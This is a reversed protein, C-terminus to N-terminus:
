SPQMEGTCPNLCYVYGDDGGTYVYGNAVAVSSEIPAQTKFKWILNGSWAGLAYIYSDTSGVYVIDDSVTPSSIVSGSTQFKWALVLSSPGVSATSSHSPDARWQSWNSSITTQGGQANNDRIAWIQNDTAYENGSITDVSTTVDGPIIYLTGYAIAVSERPPLAEMDLKWIQQGTYANICSFESTGLPANYQAAEGSTVYLKGDAVSPMGPWMLSENPGKYKWVIEGTKQDFAYLFGDKNMEYVMGYAVACGTTFYGDTDPTYSWVIKGTNADFCYMTNDDSGGKFYMGDSYAGTFIMPGKTNTSWIINGTKADLALQLNEFSGTFIKGAGYTIGIGTIGGGRIYTEWVKTPPHSLDAFSWGVVTSNVKTYFMQEEPSYVNSNFIGTFANFDSSIWLIEGTEPNLCYNEIVMHSSDIKYAIPWTSNFPLTTEWVIRGSQDLAYATSFSCVYIKGNFASLYPQIGTITTIWQVNSTDPAPGMSFRTTSSDGQFQPWEYEDENSSAAAKWEFQSSSILVSSALLILISITLLLKKNITIEGTM